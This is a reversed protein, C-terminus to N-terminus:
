YHGAHFFQCRINKPLACFEKQINYVNHVQIKFFYYVTMIHLFHARKTCGIKGENDTIPMEFREWNICVTDTLYTLFSDHLHYKICGVKSNQVIPNM